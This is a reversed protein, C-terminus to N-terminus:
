NILNEEELTEENEELIESKPQVIKELRGPISELLNKYKRNAEERM